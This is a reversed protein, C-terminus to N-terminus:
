QELGAISLASLRSERFKEQGDIRNGTPKPRRTSPIGQM